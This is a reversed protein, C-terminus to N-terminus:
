GRIKPIIYIESKSIGHEECFDNIMKEAFYKNDTLIEVLCKETKVEICKYKTM